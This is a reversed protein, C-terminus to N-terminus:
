QKKVLEFEAYVGASNTMAGKITAGSVNEAKLIVTGMGSNGDNFEARFTKGNVTYTGEMVGSLAQTTDGNATGLYLRATGGPRALLTTNLIYVHGEWMGPASFPQEDNEKKCSAALLACVAIVISYKRM